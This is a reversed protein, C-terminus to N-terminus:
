SNFEAGIIKEFLSKRSQYFQEIWTKRPEFSVKIINFTYFYIDFNCISHGLVSTELWQFTDEAVLTFSCNKKSQKKIAAMAWYNNIRVNKPFSEEKKKKHPVGM